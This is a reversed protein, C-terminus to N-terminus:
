SRVVVGAIALTWKVIRVLVGAIALTWKVVRAKLKNACTSLLECKYTNM